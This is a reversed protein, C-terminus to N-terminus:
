ILGKEKKWAKFEDPTKQDHPKDKTNNNKIPVHDTGTNLAERIGKEVGQEIDAQYQKARAVVTEISDTNGILSDHQPLGLERLAGQADMKFQSAINKANLADIEARYSHNLEEYKGAEELQKQKDQAEKLEMAEITRRENKIGADTIRQDLEAQTYTKEKTAEKTESEQDEKAGEHTAEKTEPKKEEKDAM